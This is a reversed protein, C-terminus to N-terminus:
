NKSVLKCWFTLTWPSLPLSSFGLAEILGLLNPLFANALREIKQTKQDSDSSTFKSWILIKQQKFQMKSYM